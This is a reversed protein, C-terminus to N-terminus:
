GVSLGRERLFRSHLVTTEVVGFRRLLDLDDGLVATGCGDWNEFLM